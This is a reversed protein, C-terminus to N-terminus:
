PGAPLKTLTRREGCVAPPASASEETAAQLMTLHRIIGEGGRILDRM